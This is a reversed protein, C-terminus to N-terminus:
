RSALDRARTYAGASRRLGGRVVVLGWYIGGVALGVIAMPVADRGSRSVFAEIIGAVVLWPMTGLVVLVARRAEAVLADRRTDRGPAILAWGMRLGAAAGVVIASLELVGHAAVLEVFFRGDGQEILVGAVAGLIMGNFVLVLVTGLAWLLGAGFALFTVQINNTILESSFQTQQEPSMGQDTGQPGPDIAGQFQGPVLGSAADVDSLAWAFALAAPLLLLVAATVLPVPRAAILEWYTTTFFRGPAMGRRRGGYVLQRGQVALGELQAVTPDAPAHQRFRALDAVLGRYRSGLERVGEPGLREAKGNARAILQQFYVWDPSRQEIFRPVNM